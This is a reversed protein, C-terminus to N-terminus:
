QDIRANFIIDGYPPASGSTDRPLYESLDIAQLVLADWEANGSSTTVRRSQVKGDPALTLHVTTSLNPDFDKHVLRKIFPYVRARVLGGYAASLGQSRAATGTASKETSDGGGLQKNMDDLYKARAKATQKELDAKKQQDLKAQQKQQEAKEAKERKDEELQQQKQKERERLKQDRETVIDPTRQVPPTAVPPPPPPAPTPEPTPPPTPTPEAVTPAPAAAQPVVAWLEAEVADGSETHWRVSWALGAVLALHAVLSLSAGAGWREERPPRDSARPQLPLPVTPTSM